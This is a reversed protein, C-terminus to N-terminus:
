FVVFFLLSFTSLGRMRILEIEDNDRVVDLRKRLISIYIDDV